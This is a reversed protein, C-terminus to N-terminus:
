SISISFCCCARALSRLAMTPEPSRLSFDAGVIERLVSEGVVADAESDVLEIGDHVAFDLRQDFREDRVILSFLQLLFGGGNNLPYRPRM